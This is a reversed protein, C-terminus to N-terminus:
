KVDEASEVTKYKQHKSHPIEPMTLSLKGGEVLPNLYQKRFNKTDSLQLFEMMEKKSKPEGCFVLLAEQRRKVDKASKRNGGIDRENGKNSSLDQPSDSTIGPPLDSIQPPLNFIQPPLDSYAGWGEGCHRNFIVTFGQVDSRFTVGVGSEDCLDKIRKLGTAFSEMDKSYYLTDAILPNRRIPRQTGQIFMEPTVTEPFTGPSYIEIRSRYVAVEVSERSEILRHAFANIIAERVAEVPIEPIETRQLSGHFEVRWDMADVVYDEAKQALDFISGKYRKIDTFTLREDSAFKAMQLENLGCDVFLAAGANLLYEGDTLELKNLVYKPTKGQFTIRGVKKARELYDEFISKDVDGIKYKSKRSEWATNVDKRRSLMEDYLSQEMVLDEDAVRIRPIKYALYPQRTGEFEVVVVEKGSIRKRLITPYIIPTIHNGIAQNVTRLTDDSIDQGIVTGDNKVGFYLTGKGHKNLIAAISIVGQKLEGTSKKFEQYEDEIGLTKKMTM